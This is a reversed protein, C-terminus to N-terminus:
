YVQSVLYTKLKLCKQLCHIIINQKGSAFSCLRVSCWPEWNWLLFPTLDLKKLFIVSQFRCLFFLLNNRLNQKLFVYEECMNQTITTELQYFIGEKPSFFTCRGLFSLAQSQLCIERCQFGEEILQPDKLLDDWKKGWTGRGSFQPSHWLLGPLDIAIFSFKCLTWCGSGLLHEFFPPVSWEILM